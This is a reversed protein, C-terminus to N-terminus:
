VGLMQAINAPQRLVAGWTGGTAKQKYSSLDRIVPSMRMKENFAAYGTQQAEVTEAILQVLTGAILGQPNATTRVGYQPVTVERINAFNGKLLTRVNVNFNNTITMAVAAGPSMALVLKADAEILGGTQQVLTYFLAQIDAYVENATANPVGGALMWVNAHGGAKVGPSLSATLNPDNVLGYNQLGAVGYLYTFNAFRNMTNASSADLEAVWNIRGLGARELELDGYEKVTQFLYSQRQPWNTNAGSRGNAAFDDYSSVEGSHEVLPFMATQDTWTGKRVEGLIEAAKTPAFLVKYVDPDISTTLWTPIGANATTALAPAADMALRYDRRWEDPLYTSPAAGDEFSVGKAAWEPADAAYAAMSEQLNM